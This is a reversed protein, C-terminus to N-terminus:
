AAAAHKRVLVADANTVTYGTNMEGQAKSGVFNESDVIRFAELNSVISLAEHNYMVFDVKDFAVTKLTGAKDYYKANTASLGNDEIINFGLYRGIAGTALVKDNTIPTFKDGVAELLLAYFEPSCLVTDAKAKKISLEKRAAIIASVASAVTIETTVTSVKGEQVLCANGSQGWGEGIDNVVGALQENAIAFSVANAQVGYIKRSKQFNNNLQIPILTDKSAEDTFDRGPKGPEAASGELKHVYIAGAPGEEYKDTFTVGPVFVRDYYLNPEVISSYREDVNLSGYIISM